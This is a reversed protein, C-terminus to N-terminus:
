ALETGRRRRAAAVTAGGVAVLATGLLSLPVLWEDGTRPLVGGVRGGRNNRGSGVGPNETPRASPTASPIPSPTSGQPVFQGNANLVGTCGEVTGGVVRAPINVVVAGSSFRFTADGNAICDPVPFTVNVRGNADAVASGLRFTQNANVLFYEVTTGPVFSFCGSSAGVGTQRRELTDDSLGRGAGQSAQPLYATAACQASPNYGATPTPASQAAAPAALLGTALVGAATVSLLRRFSPV